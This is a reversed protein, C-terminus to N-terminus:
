KKESATWPGAPPAVEKIMMPRLEDIGRDLFEKQRRIIAECVRIITQKRQEINKILQM